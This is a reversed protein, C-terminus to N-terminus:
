FLISMRHRQQRIFGRKADMIEQEKEKLKMEYEQQKLTLKGNWEEEKERVVKEIDVKPIDKKIRPARPKKEKVPKPEPEIPIPEPETEIEDDDDNESDTDVSFDSNQKAALKLAAKVEIAARKANQKSTLSRKDVTGKKTIRPM